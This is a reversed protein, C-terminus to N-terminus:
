RSGGGSGNRSVPSSATKLSLILARRQRESLGGLTKSSSVQCRKLLRDVKVHGLKPIALLLDRVKMSRVWNPPTKIVRLPSDGAKIRRKLLSRQTRIHNGNALAAMRQEVTREPVLTPNM